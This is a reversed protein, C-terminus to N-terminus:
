NPLNGGEAINGKNGTGPASESAGILAKYTLRKGSAGKLALVFRQGDDMRRNNFRFAESDVYAELHFPEISVHTGKICRKFLSWFNEAGNTHVIGDVYADAHDIFKHVYQTPDLQRYARWADTFVQTGPRVNEHIVSHLTERDIAPIVQARITSHGKESHRELLGMVATKTPSGRGQIKRAREAAHMNKAAGGHFTEDVEVIGGEGGLKNFTNQKVALRIRHLMFWASKQTIGLSRHIEYSSISNKANVELWFAVAWKDLGLPSDEMVSGTKVTFQRSAHNHCCSFRRYNPLYRVNKSGCRPCVPGDPWRINTFFDHAADLDAFYAVAQMLTKIRGIKEATKTDM